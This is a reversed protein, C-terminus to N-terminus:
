VVREEELFVKCGRGALLQTGGDIIILIEDWSTKFLTPGGKTKTKTKNKEWITPAACFVIVEKM